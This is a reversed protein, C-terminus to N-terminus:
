KQMRVRTNDNIQEDPDNVRLEEEAIDLTVEYRQRAESPGWGWSSNGPHAPVSQILKATHKNIRVEHDKDCGSVLIQRSITAKQSLVTNAVYSLLPHARRATAWGNSLLVVAANYTLDGVILVVKGMTSALIPKGLSAWEDAASGQSIGAISQWSKWVFDGQSRMWKESRGDSIGLSQACRFVWKHPKVEILSVGHLLGHPDVDITFDPCYVEGNPLNLRTSLDDEYRCQIQHADLARACKVELESHMKRGGYVLRKGRIQESYSV